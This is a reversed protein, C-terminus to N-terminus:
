PSKFVHLFYLSTMLAAFAFTGNSVVPFLVQRENSHQPPTALGFPFMSYEHPEDPAALADKKIPRTSQPTGIYSAHISVRLINLAEYAIWPIM